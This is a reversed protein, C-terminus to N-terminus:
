EQPQSVALDSLELEKEAILDEIREKQLALEELSMTDLEYKPTDVQIGNKRLFSDVKQQNKKYAYYGLASVGVGVAFGTIHDRTINLM